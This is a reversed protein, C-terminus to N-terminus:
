RYRLGYGSDADAYADILVLDLTLAIASNIPVVPLLHSASQCRDFCMGTSLGILRCCCSLVLCSLILRVPVASAFKKPDNLHGILAAVRDDSVGPLLLPAFGCTTQVKVLEKTDSSRYYYFQDESDWM